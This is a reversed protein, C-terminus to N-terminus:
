VAVPKGNKEWGAIGAPMIYVSTYGLALAAKAGSHCAM